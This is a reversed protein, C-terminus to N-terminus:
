PVCATVALDAWVVRGTAVEYSGWKLAMEDILELGRGGDSDAEVRRVQPASDSAGEDVVALRLVPGKARLKVTVLGGQRRGSNSHRVSNTVLESVVLLVMYEDGEDHTLARLRLAAKVFARALPVSILAGPLIVAGLFRSTM